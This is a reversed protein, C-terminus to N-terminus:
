KAPSETKGEADKPAARHKSPVPWWPPLSSFFHKDTSTGSRTRGPEITIRYSAEPAGEFSVSCFHKVGFGVAMGPEERISKLPYRNWERMFRQLIEKKGPWDGRLSAEWKPDPVGGMQYEEYADSPPEGKLNALVQLSLFKSFAEVNDEIACAHFFSRAARIVTERSYEFNSHREITDPWDIVTIFTQVRTMVDPPATVIVEHDDASARAEYDHQRQLLQRLQEVMNRAAQHRLPFTRTAGQPKPKEVPAQFGPAPPMQFAPAARESGPSVIGVEAFVDWWETLVSGPANQAEARLLQFSASTRTEGLHAAEGINPLPPVDPSTLKVPKIFSREIRHFIVGTDPDVLDLIWQNGFKGQQAPYAHWRLVFGTARNAATKFVLSEGLETKRGDKSSQDLRV